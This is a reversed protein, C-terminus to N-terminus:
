YIPLTMKPFIHLVLELLAFSAPFWVMVAEQLADIQIQAQIVQQRTYNKQM